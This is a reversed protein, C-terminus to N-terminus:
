FSMSRLVTAITLLWGSYLCTLTLYFLLNGIYMVIAWVLVVRRGVAGDINWFWFPIFCSYFLEDGLATGFMFIFYWLKNKIKYELKEEDKSCEEGNKCDRSNKSAVEVGFYKQVNAVLIPEKLYEVIDRM